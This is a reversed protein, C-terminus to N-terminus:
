RGGPFLPVPTQGGTPIHPMAPSPAPVLQDPPLGAVVAALNYGSMRLDQGNGGLRPYDAHSGVGDRVTGATGGLHHDPRRSRADCM